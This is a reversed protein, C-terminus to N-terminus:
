KMYRQITTRNKEINQSWRCLMFAVITNWDYTPELYARLEEESFGNEMASICFTSIDEYPSGFQLQLNDTIGIIHEGNFYLADYTFEGHLRTIGSKKVSRMNILSQIHQFLVAISINHKTAITEQSRLVTILNQVLTCSYDHLDTSVPTHLSKWIIKVQKMVEAREQMPVTKMYRCLAEGFVCASRHMPDLQESFLAIHPQDKLKQVDVKRITYPTSLSHSSFLSSLLM